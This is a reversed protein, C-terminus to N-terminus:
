ERPRILQFYRRVYFRYGPPIEDHELSQEAVTQYDVYVDKYAKGVFGREAAGHIVEASASGQGTDVAAASVDHTEGKPPPTAEGALHEDHGSGAQRGSGPKDGKAGEGSQGTGGPVQVIRPVQVQEIRTGRGMGKGSQQGPKGSQEGEEGGTGGGRARQGFRRMQRLREQGAQGQQRLLEKMERLRELLQRKEKESLERKEVKNLEDATRRIDEAGTQSDKALDRAAEALQRDLDSLQRAAREARDHDRELRELKRQNEALKGDVKDGDKGGESKKKRLSQKEDALERRRQEIAALREGSQRSAREVAGRLRELEARSVANKKKLKEALERLAQAADALRKEELAQAATKTLGSRALERALGELGLDRAERDIDASKALESELDSMREFAEKRELRRAAIDEILANFRRIAALSEPDDAKESMQRAIEGFLELDDPAMVLPEFAPPPPLVRTVRVEFWLAGVLLAALLVSVGLERPIPVPVARRPDLRDVVALGDEIAAQSLATREAEPRELLSLATTIRDSLGHYEDLALSGAWRAPRRLLARITIAAAIVALLVGVGVLARQAVSSAAGFKMLALAGAAYGLPLPLWTALRQM